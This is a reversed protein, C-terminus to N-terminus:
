KRKVDQMVSFEVGKNDKLKKEVLQISEVPKAEPPLERYTKNLEIFESRSKSFRTNHDIFNV